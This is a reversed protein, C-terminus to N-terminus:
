RRKRPCEKRHRISKRYGSARLCEACPGGNAQAELAAIFRAKEEAFRGSAYQARFRKVEQRETEARQRAEEAAVLERARDAPFAPLTDGRAFCAPNRCAKWEGSVAGFCFPCNYSGDPWTKEPTRERGLCDVITKMYGIEAYSGQGDGRLFTEGM